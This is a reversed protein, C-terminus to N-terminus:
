APKHYRLARGIAIRVLNSVDPGDAKLLIARNGDFVSPEPFQNRLEEIISTQCHVFMAPVGSPGGHLGLRITTGSKSASTLYSPQGWRLAETLEGVVPDGKAQAFIEARVELLRARSAPDFEGFALAVEAPPDSEPKAM